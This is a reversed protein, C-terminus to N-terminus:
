TKEIKRLFSGAEEAERGPSEISGDKLELHPV